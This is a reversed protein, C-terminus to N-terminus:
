LWPKTSKYTRVNQTYTDIEVTTSWSESTIARMDGEGYHYGYTALDERNPTSNDDSTDPWTKQTDTQKAHMYTQHIYTGNTVNTKWNWAMVNWKAVTYGSPNNGSNGFWNEWSSKNIQMVGWDSGHVIPQGNADYHNWRATPMGAWEQWAIARIIDSGLEASFDSNSPDEDIEITVACHL